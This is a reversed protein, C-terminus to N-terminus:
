FEFYSAKDALNHKFKNMAVLKLEQWFDEKKIHCYKDQVKGFSIEFCTENDKV